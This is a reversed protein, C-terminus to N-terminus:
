RKPAPLTERVVRGSRTQIHLSGTQAFYNLQALGRPPSGRRTAVSEILAISYNEARNAGIVGWAQRLLVIMSAESTSPPVFLDVTIAPKWATVQVKTVMAPLRSDLRNALAQMHKQVEAPVTTGPPSSPISTATAGGKLGAKGSQPTSFTQKVSRGQRTQIVLTGTVAYYSLVALGKPLAAGSEILAISYNEAKNAGLRSWASRLLSIMEAESTARPVFLDVIIAPKLAQVRVNSVKAPLQPRLQTAMAAMRREEPSLTTTTTSPPPSTVITFGLTTTTFVTTTVKSDDVTTPGPGVPESDEAVPDLATKEPPKGRCAPSLVLFAALVM